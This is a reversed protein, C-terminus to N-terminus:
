RDLRAIAECVDALTEVCADPTCSTDCRGAYQLVRVARLGSARAGRVDLEAHDGVHVARAPEAGVARLAAEFIHPDPKLYGVENSFITAEFRRLIGMRRMTERLARGPTRSTNSILALRYGAGALERLTQDAGQVLFPEVHLVANAYPDYLAEVLAPAPEVGLFRLLVKIQEGTDVDLNAAWREALYLHEADDYAREIQELPRSIGAAALAAQMGELRWARIRGDYLEDHAILTYWLDFTVVDISRGTM